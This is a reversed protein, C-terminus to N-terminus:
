KIRRCFFLDDDLDRDEVFFPHFLRDGIDATANDVNLVPEHNLPSPPETAHLLYARSMTTTLTGTDTIIHITDVGRDLLYNAINTIYPSDAEVVYLRAGHQADVLIEAIRTDIDKGCNRSNSPEPGDSYQCRDQVHLPLKQGSPMHETSMNIVGVDDQSLYWIIQDGRYAYSVGGPNYYWDGTHIIARKDLLMASIQVAPYREVFSILLSVPVFAEMDTYEAPTTASIHVAGNQALYERIHSPEHTRVIIGILDNPNAHDYPAPISDHDPSGLVNRTIDNLVSDMQPYCEPRSEAPTHAAHGYFRDHPLPPEGTVSFTQVNLVDPRELLAHLTYESKDSPLHVLISQIENSQDFYRMMVTHSGDINRLFSETCLSDYSNIFFGTINQASAADIYGLSLLITMALLTYPTKDHANKLKSVLNPAAGHRKKATTM